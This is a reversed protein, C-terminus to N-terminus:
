QYGVQSACGAASVGFELSSSQGGCSMSRALHRAMAFSKSWTMMLVEVGDSFFSQLTASAMLACFGSVFIPKTPACVITKGVSVKFADGAISQTPRLSNSKVQLSTASPRGSSVM